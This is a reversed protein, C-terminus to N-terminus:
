RRVLVSTAGPLSPGQWLVDDVNLTLPAIGLKGALTGFSRWGLLPYEEVLEEVLGCHERWAAFHSALLVLDDLELLLLVLARVQLVGCVSGPDAIDVLLFALPLSPRRLSPSTCLAASFSGSCRVEDDVGDAFVLQGVSLAMLLDDVLLVDVSPFKM